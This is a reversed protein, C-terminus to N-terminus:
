WASWGGDVMINQGTVYGALDSALWAVAGIADEESAMRGLPTRTEYKQVFSEAQGRAIGGLSVVNVRVKPALATAFHRALQVLAAKSAGYAAPNSMPTGEYLRFDPALSGYISGIFIVSGRESNALQAAAAQTLMFASTLNVRLAEDWAEVTQSELPVSWGARETTGVYAASHVLIDLGGLEGVVAPVLARTSEEERLDVAFRRQTDTSPRRSSDPLDAVAVTAGLQELAGAIASGVHGLGGIVLATRGQLSQLEALTRM